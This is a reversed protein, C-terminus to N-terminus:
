GEEYGLLQRVVTRLLDPSAAENEAVVTWNGDADREVRVCTQLLVLVATVLDVALGNVFREPASGGMLERLPDRNAPDQAYLRLAGRALDGAGASPDPAADFADRLVARRDPTLATDTPDGVVKALLTALRVAEDDALADIRAPLDPVATSRFASSLLFYM